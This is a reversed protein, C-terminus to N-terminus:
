RASARGAQGAFLHRWQKESIKRDNVTHHGVSDLAGQIGDAHQAGFGADLLFEGFEEDNLFVREASEGATQDNPTFTVAYRSDGSRTFHLSGTYEM